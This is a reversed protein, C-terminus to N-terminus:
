KTIKIAPGKELRFNDVFMEWDTTGSHSYLTIGFIGPNTAYDMYQMGETLEYLSIRWTTWKGYTSHMGEHWKAWDGAERKMDPRNNQLIKLPAYRKQYGEMSFWLSMWEDRSKDANYMDFCFYWSTYAEETQPIKDMGSKKMVAEPLQLENFITGSGQKPHRLIRLVKEGSTAEIGYDAARVVSTEFTQNVDANLKSIAVYKQYTKEFDCIEYKIANGSEDKTVDLIIYDKPERSQESKTIEVDDLYVTNGDEPYIADTDEFQFYIGKVNKYDGRLSLYDVDILYSIKTWKDPTLTYEASDISSMRYLDFSSAIGFTVKVDKASANYMYASVLVCSSFDNYSFEFVESSTPILLQPNSKSEIPGVIQLKASYNGSNVYKKDSNRTVKGFRGYIKMLQFDPAWQEFDAVVIKDGDSSEKDGCGVFAASCLLMLASLFLVFIKKMM